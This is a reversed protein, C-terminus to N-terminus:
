WFKWWPKSPLEPEAEPAASEPTGAVLGVLMGRADVLFPIPSVRRKPTKDFESRTWQILTSVRKMDMASTAFFGHECPVGVALMDARGLEHAVWKMISPVLVMEAGYEESLAITGSEVKHLTVKPRRAELNALAEGEVDGLTRTGLDKPAMRALTKPTDWGFTVWPGREFKGGFLRRHVASELHPWSEERLVPLLPGDPREHSSTIRAGVCLVREIGADDFARCELGFRKIQAVNKEGHGPMVFVIAVMEIPEGDETASGKLTALRRLHDESIEGTVNTEILTRNRADYLM